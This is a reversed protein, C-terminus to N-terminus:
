GMSDATSEIVQSTLNGTIGLITGGPKQLGTDINSSSFAFKSHEWVQQQHQSFLRRIYPHRLNLNPENIAIIDAGIHKMECFFDLIDLGNCGQRFGNVHQFYIRVIDSTDHLNDLDPGWPINTKLNRPIISRPQRSADSTQSTQCAPALTSAAPTTV